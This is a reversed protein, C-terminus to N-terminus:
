EIKDLILWNYLVLWDNQTAIEELSILIDYSSVELTLGTDHTKLIVHVDNLMLGNLTILFRVDGVATM